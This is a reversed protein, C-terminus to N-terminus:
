EIYEVEFDLNVPEDNLLRPRHYIGQRGGSLRYKNTVEVSEDVEEFTLDDVWVQGRGFLHAGVYIIDATDPVDLVVEYYAWDTTGSLNRDEMDDFVYGYRSDTNVRMWLGTWGNVMNTKLYGSFRMRKGRYLDAEFYQTLRGQDDKMVAVALLCASKQGSHRVETDIASVFDYAPTGDQDGYLLWGPPEQPSLNGQISQDDLGRDAFKMCTNFVLMSVLLLASCVTSRKFWQLRSNATYM